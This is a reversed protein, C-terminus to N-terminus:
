HVTGSGGFKDDLLYRAKHVMEKKELIKSAEEESIGLSKAIESIDYCPQGERTFNTEQLEPFCAQTAQGSAKLLLDVIEPPGYHLLWEIAEAWLESDVTPNQVIKMATDLDLCDKFDM